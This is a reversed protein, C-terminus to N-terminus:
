QLKRVRPINCEGRSEFDMRTLQVSIVQSCLETNHLVLQNPLPYIYIYIYPAIKLGRSFVCTDSFHIDLADWDLFVFDDCLKEIKGECVERGIYIKMIFYMVRTVACVTVNTSVKVSTFFM